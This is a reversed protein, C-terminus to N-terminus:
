ADIRASPNSNIGLNKDYISKTSLFSSNQCDEQKNTIQTTISVARIIYSFYIM